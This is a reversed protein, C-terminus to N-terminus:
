PTPEVATATKKKSTRKKSPPKPEQNEEASVTKPPLEDRLKTWIVGLMNQGQVVVNGEADLDARGEWVRSDMQSAGVRMAPHVLMKDGTDRLDKQVQKYTALKYRSIEEQVGPSIESWRKLEAPTLTEKRGMSKAQAGKTEGANEKRFKTAYRQLAEGRAKDESEQGLRWFKEGHFAHEGTPYVRGDLVVDGEWFNSLSRFESKGDRFTAVKSDLLKKESVNKRTKTKPSPKKSIMMGQLPEELPTRSGTEEPIVSLRKEEPQTPLDVKKKSPTRPKRVPSPESAASALSLSKRPLDIPVPSALSNSSPETAAVKKTSRKKTTGETKRETQRATQRGTIAKITGRKTSKGVPPQSPRQESIPPQNIASGISAVGAAPSFAARVSNYAATTLQGLSQDPSPLGQAAALLNRLTERNADPGKQLPQCPGKDAPAYVRKPKYRGQTANTKTDATKTANTQRLSGMIRQRMTQPWDATTAPMVQRVARHAAAIIKAAKEPAADLRDIESLLNSLNPRIAVYHIGAELGAAEDLWSRYPSEVRLVVSNSLLSKTLRYALVNGDIHIIYRYKAQEEPKMFDVTQIDKAKLFGIGFKPDIRISKSEVTQGKYRDKMVIGADVQQMFQLGTMFSALRLRANTATTRGCGTPSGRFVAKAKKELWEEAEIETDERVLELDDYTPIPIDHYGEQGSTSFVPLFTKDVFRADTPVNPLPFPFQGNERLLVADTLNFIYLGPRLQSMRSFLDNYEKSFTTDEKGLPKIICQMLRFPKELTAKIVAKEQEDPVKEVLPQLAKQILPSTSDPVLKVFTAPKGKADVGLVYCPHHLYDMLYDLTRELAARSQEWPKPLPSSGEPPVFPVLAALAESKTRITSHNM